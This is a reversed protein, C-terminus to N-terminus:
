IRQSKEYSMAEENWRKEPSRTQMLTKPFMMARPYKSVCPFRYRSPLLVVSYLGDDVISRCVSCSSILAKSHAQRM